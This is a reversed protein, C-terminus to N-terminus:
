QHWITVVRNWGSCAKYGDNQNPHDSPTCNRACKGSTGYKNVYPPLIQMSGIRGPVPRANTDRGECYYATPNSSFINGFFSGEQQPYAPSQGFGVAPHEAMMWVPVHTGTTNVLALICATMWEQCTQGCAGREWEPAVGVMGPFIYRTGKSDSKQLTRDAPLACKVVYSALTRGVETSMMISDPDLGGSLGGDLSLGNRARLGNSGRLGNLSRLGNVDALGNMGATAADETIEIGGPAPECGMSLPLFPVVAILTMLTTSRLPWAFGHPQLKM